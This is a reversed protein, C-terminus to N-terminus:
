AELIALLKFLAVSKPFSRPYKRDPFSLWTPQSPSPGGVRHNLTVKEVLQALWGLSGPGPVRSSLHFRKAM